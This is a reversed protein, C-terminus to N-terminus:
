NSGKKSDFGRPNHKDISPQEVHSSDKDEQTGPSLDAGKRINDRPNQVLKAIREMNEELNNMTNELNVLDDM